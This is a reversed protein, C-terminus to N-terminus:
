AARAALGAAYDPWWTGAAPGGRCTGDSEGPRKIWLLADLGAVGTATTPREGLARDPPNCWGEPGDYPGLGNRSTDVVFPKGGLRQALARGYAIEDATTRFNSVNLSFGRAGAVGAAELRAAMADAGVWASHGADLYVSAGSATLTAVAEALLALRARQQDATLCSLLGLADPELVVAASRGGIGKALEGIWGRYGDPTGIGGASYSGCDRAPIAYAVLVPVAGAATVTDIRAGATAALQDTAIWDGLWDAQSHAAIKDFLAARAPDSGRLAAAERAANSYPDVYLSAGALAHQPAPAPPEETAVVVRDVRLNRDCKKTLLDNTFSVAVRHTGAPASVAASYDAWTTSRVDASLVVAGDLRVEMRPAGSCLDGRARVTLRRIADTAVSTSATGNSWILLARGGSASGDGHATGAGATLAMSEAEIGADASAPSPPVACAAIAAVVVVALPRFSAPLRM